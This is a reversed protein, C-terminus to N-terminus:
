LIDGKLLTPVKPEDKIQNMAQNFIITEETSSLGAHYNLKMYYEADTRPCPSDCDPIAPIMQDKRISDESVIFCKVYNSNGNYRVAVIDGIRIETNYSVPWYFFGYAPISCLPFYDGTSLAWINRGMSFGKSKPAKNPIIDVKSDLAMAIKSLTDLGASFKGSEIRSLNAPDIGTLRALMKAEMGKEERISRIKKGIRTREDNRDPMIFLPTEMKARAMQMSIFSFLDGEPMKDYDDMISCILTPYYVSDQASVNSSFGIIYVDGKSSEVKIQVTGRKASEFSLIKAM